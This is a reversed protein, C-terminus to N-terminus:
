DQCNDQWLPIHLTFTSGKNLESIVDIRCDYAKVLQQLISLGLGLGSQTTLRTRSQDTRYFREFIHDIDEKSIGQGYDKVSVTAEQKGCNLSIELDHRDLSYKVANDMLITLAQELHPQYMAVQCDELEQLLSITFEPHLIKFNSILHKVTRGLDSSADKHQNLGGHVRVMNLMDQIMLSMRKTEQHSSALSEELVVPDDKGWRRLMNLHGDIIAIPTRLEHSVDSVFRSQLQSYGEVEDLMKDFLTSLEEIEDGTKLQSRLNLKDPHSSLERMVRNLQRLPALFYRTGVTIVLITMLLSLLELVFLTTLLKSTLDHYHELDHFLQVTGLLNGTRQSHVEKTLSYGVRGNVELDSIKDLETREQVGASRDTTFVLQNVNDYIYIEQNLYLMNTIDRETRLIHYGDERTILDDNTANKYLNESLNGLSLTTQSQALRQVVNDVANEIHRQEQRLLFRETLVYTSANFLTALFLFSLCFVLSMKNALPMKLHRFFGGIKSTVFPM